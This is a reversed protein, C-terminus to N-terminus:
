IASIVNKLINDRQAQALSGSRAHMWYGVRELMGSVGIGKTLFDDGGAEIGRRLVDLRDSSTFFIISVASGLQSRIRKCVEVGAIGPLNIDLIVLKPIYHTLMSIAREGSRASVVQYGNAKLADVYLTRQLPEDEVIMIMGRAM